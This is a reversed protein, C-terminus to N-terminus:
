SVPLAPPSTGRDAPDTTAFALVDFITTPDSAYRGADTPDAGNGHHEESQEEPDVRAHKESQQVPVLRLLGIVVAGAGRAQRFVSAIVRHPLEYGDDEGIGLINPVLDELAHASVVVIRLEHEIGAPYARGAPEGAGSRPREITRLVV